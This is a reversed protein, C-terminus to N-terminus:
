GQPAAEGSPAPGPARAVLVKDVRNGDMDLVEFCFGEWEFLDGAAPVRRLQAMVMGGGTQYDGEREEALARLGLIPYRGM